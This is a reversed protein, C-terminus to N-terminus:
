AVIGQMNAIRNAANETVGKKSHNQLRLISVSELNYICSTESYVKPDFLDEVMRFRATAEHTDTQNKVSYNSGASHIITGNGVYLMAHGSGTTRRINIIDGPRLVSVIKEKLAAKGADDLTAEYKDGNKKM